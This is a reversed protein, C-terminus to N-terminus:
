TLTNVFDPYLTVEKPFSTTEDKAGGQRQIGDLNQGHQLCKGHCIKPNKSYQLKPFITKELEKEQEEQRRPSTPQSPAQQYFISPRRGQSGGEKQFPIVQDKKNSTQIITSEM